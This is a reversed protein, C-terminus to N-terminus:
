NKKAKFEGKYEPNAIVPPEWDGDMDDDWDEPKEASPDPIQAIDVWTDPKIDEPDDIEKEDVWDEPKRDEPDDITKPPIFKHKPNSFEDISGLKGELVQKEDVQIVFSNDPEIFLTVLHSKKDGYILNGIDSIPNAHVENVKGSTPNKLFGLLSTLCFILRITIAFFLFFVVFFLGLIIVIFLLFQVVFFLLLIFSM